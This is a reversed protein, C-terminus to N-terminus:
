RYSIEKFITSVFNVFEQGLIFLMFLIFIIFFMGAITLLTTGIFKSFGYEHVTMIGICLLWGAFKDCLAGIVTIAASENTLMHSLIIFLIQNVILPLLAYCTVQYIEKIRGKGLSLTCVGWNVIVWLVVIAISKVFTLYPNFTDGEFVTYMFGGYLQSFVSLVAFILLIVTAILSSGGNKYKINNFADFPHFIESFLVSLKGNRIIKIGKRKLYIFLLIVLIILCIGCAFLWGFNDALFLSNKEAFALSYTEQDIGKKAYEMAGKYDGKNLYSKALGRYALQCNKDQELVSQWIPESEEYLAKQTLLNANMISKVYDTPGFVTIKGLEQDLVLIDGDVVAIDVVFKFTGDFEGLGDSSGFVTICNCNKDYVFIKGYTRDVSYIYGNEDTTLSVFNLIRKLGTATDIPITTDGFDYTSASESKYNNKYKLINSGAPSLKKIQGPVTGYSNAKGTVTYIFDRNDVHINVFQYPLNQISNARKASNNTVLDWLKQLADLVTGEVKNSGFLSLFQGNSDFVFAGYYCEECTVFMFGRSDVVIKSPRFNFDSPIVNSEPKIIEKKVVGKLDSIIINGQEPNAIYIVDSDVFIGTAGNISIEQGNSIFRPIQGVVSYSKNLIIVRNNNSDLLYIKEGDYFMDSPQSFASINLYSSDIVNKVTYTAKTEYGKKTTYGTWYTYYDFASEASTTITLCSFSFLMCLLVVLLKKIRM